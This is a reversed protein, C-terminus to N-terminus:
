FIQLDDDYIKEMFKIKNKIRNCIIEECTGSIWVIQQLAPTKTDVRYIRGLTQILDDGSFPPSILSVRPVGYKDNLDIGTGGAKINCLILNKKNKQFDDIHKERTKVDQSGWIICDTKFKSSLIKITETFNVFVAVNNGRDLYENILEEFIPIKIKELLQRSKQLEDLSNRNEKIKLKTDGASSNNLNNKINKFARNALNRQRSNIDYCESIIQNKPFDDGIEKVCMRAGRDPFICKHLVNLKNTADITNSERRIQETIFGKGRQWSNYLGLMYGFSSFDKPNNSITASLMLVKCRINKTSLLLKGNKSNPNKCRHAEDFVILANNSLCKWRYKGDVINIHKSKIRNGSRNYTKGLRATEYNIADIIVIGFYRAVTRWKSIIIKPCIVFIPMNLEKALACTTYTKGTGTESGDLVIRNNKFCLRLNFVHSFQYNLIKSSVEDKLSMNEFASFDGSEILEHLRKNVKNNHYETMM